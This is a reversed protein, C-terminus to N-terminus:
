NSKSKKTETISLTDNMDQSKEISDSQVKASKASKHKSPKNQNEYWGWAMLGFFILLVWFALKWLFGGKKKKPTSTRPAPTPAPSPTSFPNFNSISSPVSTHPSKFLFEEGCKKCDYGDQYFKAIFDAAEKDQIKGMAKIMPYKRTQHSAKKVQISNCYPCHIKGDKGFYATKM